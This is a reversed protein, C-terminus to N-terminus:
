ITEEESRGLDSLIRRAKYNSELKATVSYNSLKEKGFEHNRNSNYFLVSSLFLCCMAASTADHHEENNINKYKPM